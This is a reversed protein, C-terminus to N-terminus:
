DANFCTGATAQLAGEKGQVLHVREGLLLAGKTRSWHV